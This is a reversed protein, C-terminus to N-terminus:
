APLRLIAKAIINRQIESTGGFISTPRALMYLYALRVHEDGIVIEGRTAHDQAIELLFAACRQALDANLIKLVALDATIVRGSAYADAALSHLRAIDKYDLLLTGFGSRYSSTREIELHGALREIYGIMLRALVPASVAIRESELLTKAVRWGDNVDGVVQDAPIHVNDLFVECFEDEGALNVIPRVTVGPTDMDMLFFTIGAQKPGENSTRALFFMADADSAHTTWIKQGDVIFKDGVRRASTRLSALDSGANPESYGQCWIESGDVISPLYREHQAVTGFKLLVPALMTEGMDLVRAVRALELEEQYVIRKRLSLGMGGEATPLGPGRWGGDNLLRLWERMEEGRLREVPRRFKSPVNAALWARFESRFADDTLNNRVQTM